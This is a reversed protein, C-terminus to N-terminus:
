CRKVTEEVLNCFREGIGEWGYREEVLKRGKEAMAQRLAPSELLRVCLGALAGPAEAILIEEGPRAALGEAGKPTAVVPTGLAMAELIKLRTGGGSRLPAIALWSGAVAPRVDDLYGSLEVGEVGAVGALDVGETRGTVVLRAGPRAQRVLPLAEAVFWRVAELNAAYTLSGNFVLRDAQPEALGMQRTELDVGNPIVALRGGYEPFNTQVARQDQESVMSVSDFQAYLKREYRRCKQWTVWGAMRRIPGGQMRYREEMWRTTFNHEELIRARAAGQLAYPAAEMTSAIVCAPKVQELLEMAQGAMEASYGRLVDRPTLSFHGSLNKRPDRWFPDRVVVQASACLEGAAPLYEREREAPLFALLHVRHRKGLAKLLQYVRIRSGNDQPFPFWASIFLLEM